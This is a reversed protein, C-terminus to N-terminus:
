GREEFWQKKPKERINSVVEEETNQMAFYLPPTRLVSPNIKVALIKHFGKM